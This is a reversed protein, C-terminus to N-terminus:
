RKTKGKRKEVRRNAASLVKGTQSKGKGGAIKDLEEILNQRRKQKPTQKKLQM